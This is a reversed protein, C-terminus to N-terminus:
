FTMNLTMLGTRGAGPVAHSESASSFYASQFYYKNTVNDLNLQLNFHQSLQYSAMMNWLMYGAMSASNDPSAYRPGYIYLGSGLKLADTPMYTTWLNYTDAAINPVKNGIESLGTNPDTGNVILANLHTYGTTIDWNSTIRGNLTLELGRVRESFSAAQLTPNDPDAVRVNDATIQFLAGNLSLKGKLLSLKGGVEMNTTKQPTLSTTSPALTLYQIAPNYSTGYSFYYSQTEFPKFVLAARPSVLDNTETFSDGSTKDYFNSIFRDFNLGGIVDFEDNVHLTDVAYVNIDDGRSGPQSTIPQPAAPAQQPNPNLLSTPAILSPTLDNQDQYRNTNLTERSLGLGTVLDHKFQGTKFNSTLNLRDILLTTTGSSSPQDRGVQIASLPTGLPYSGDPLPGSLVPATVQYNFTYNGYRFSNTLKTKANFYHELSATVVDTTTQTRDYNALGYFNNRAVPAPAGNLFPIGYDPINNEAQHLYSLTLKTAGDMGFSISPAFGFRQNLAVDRDAINSREAMMTLRVATGPNVVYNFDGTGRALANTGGKLSFNNISTDTPLKTEQNVIGATSGYGFMTSSPGKIVDVGDLNFSDRTYSGPDRLGDMFFGNQVVLGRLNINDGHAGGEGSNMTIGPVNKLADTLRTISQNQIQEQDIVDIAQPTDQLPATYLDINLKRLNNSAAPASSSEVKVDPLVTEDEAQVLPSVTSGAAIGFLTGILKAPAPKTQQKRCQAHPYSKIPM